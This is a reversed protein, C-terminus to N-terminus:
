HQDDSSHDSAKFLMVAQVIGVHMYLFTGGEHTVRSGYKKGVICHWPASYKEDFTKVLQEAMDQEIMRKEIMDVMMTYAEIVWDDPMDMQKLDIKHKKSLESNIRDQLAQKEETTRVKRKEAGGSRGSMSMQRWIIELQDPLEVVTCNCDTSYQM